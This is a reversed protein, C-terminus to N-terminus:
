ATADPPFRTREGGLRKGGGGEGDMADGTLGKRRGHGPERFEVEIQPDLKGLQNGLEKSTRHTRRDGISM